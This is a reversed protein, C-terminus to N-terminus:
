RSSKNCIWNIQSEASAFAHIFNITNKPVNDENYGLNKSITDICYGEYINFEADTTIKEKSLVRWNYNKDLLINICRINLTSADKEIVRLFTPYTKGNLAYGEVSELVPFHLNDCNIADVDWMEKFKGSSLVYIAFKLYPGKANKEKQSFDWAKKYNTNDSFVGFCSDGVYIKRTVMFIQPDPTDTINLSYMVTDANYNIYSKSTSFSAIGSNGQEKCGNSFISISFLMLLYNINNVTKM